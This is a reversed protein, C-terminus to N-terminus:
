GGQQLRREIEEVDKAVGIRKKDIEIQQQVTKRAYVVTTHDRKGFYKGIMAMTKNTYKTALYMAIQRPIAYAQKKSKSLIQEKSIGFYECVVQVIVDISIEKKRRVQFQEMVQQILPLDIPVKKYISRVLLNNILGILDRVNWSCEKAIYHICKEDLEIGNQSLYFHLINMRDEFTPYSIEAQTGGRFRSLVREPIDKLEHPPVDSTLVIIKNNQQLYNFLYFFANTTKEKNALFQVDDLLLMDVKSYYSIFKEYSFTDESSKQKKQVARIFENTFDEATRYIVMKKPHYKLAENGIAQLIHSKGVGTPGYLFLPTYSSHTHFSQAITKGILVALRNFEGEVLNSFTYRSNLGAHHTPSVFGVASYPSFSPTSYSITQPSSIGSGTNLNAPTTITKGTESGNGIVRVVYELRANKGMVRCLVKALLDAYHEDLWETYFSSPVLLRLCHNQIELAVLPKFWTEYIDEDVNDRIITLCQEWIAKADNDKGQREADDRKEVRYADM